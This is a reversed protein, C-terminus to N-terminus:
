ERKDLLYNEPFRRGLGRFYLRSLLYIALLYPSFFFFIDASSVIAAIIVGGPSPPIPAMLIEPGSEGEM